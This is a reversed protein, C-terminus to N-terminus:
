CKDHTSFHLSILLSGTVHARSKEMNIEAKKLVCVLQLCIIRLDATQLNLKGLYGKTFVSTKYGNLQSPQSGDSLWICALLM